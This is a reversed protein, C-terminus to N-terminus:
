SVSVAASAGGEVTQETAVGNWVIAATLSCVGAVDSPITATLALVQRPTGVTNWFAVWPVSVRDTVTQFTKPDVYSVTASGATGTLRYEVTQV